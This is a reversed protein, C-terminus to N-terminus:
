FVEGHAGQLARRQWNHDGFDDAHLGGSASGGRMYASPAYLVYLLQELPPTGGDLCLQDLLELRYRNIAWSRRKVVTEFLNDKTQFHYHLLAQNVDASKAIARMSAGEYGHAAFVEELPM